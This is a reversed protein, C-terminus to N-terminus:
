LMAVTCSFGLCHPPSTYRRSMRSVMVPPFIAKGLPFLSGEVTSSQSYISPRIFCYKSVDPIGSVAQRIM